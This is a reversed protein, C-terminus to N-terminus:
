SLSFHGPLRRASSPYQTRVSPMQKYHQDSERRFFGERPPHLAVALDSNVAELDALWREAEPLTEVVVAIFRTEFARAIAAVLVADASGHLGGVSVREGPAPLLATLRAFASREAIADLLLPLSM